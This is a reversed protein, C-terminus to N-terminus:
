DKLVWRKRFVNITPAWFTLGVEGDNYMAREEIAIVSAISFWLTQNFAAITLIVQPFTTAAPSFLRTITESKMGVTAKCSSIALQAMTPKDLVLTTVTRLM